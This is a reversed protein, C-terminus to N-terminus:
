QSVNFTYSVKGVGPISIEARWINKGSPCRPLTGKGSYTGNSKKKMVVENRAMFMGPMSLNLLLTPATNKGIANITFTLENMTKVPRPTIDFIIERMEVTKFCPGKDISCDPIQGSNLAFAAQMPLFISLLLIATIIIRM